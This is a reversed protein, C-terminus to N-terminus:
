DPIVLTKGSLTIRDASGPTAQIGPVNASSIAPAAGPSGGRPTTRVVQSDPLAAGTKLNAYILDLAQNYYVQLPVYRTDYGAITGNSADFHQANLVEYYRLKSTGGEVLANKGVYPRSSHNVPVLADARGHVIVAPKGQLNATYQIEKIGNQVRTAQDALTGAALDQGAADKGTALERLCLAGDFAFDSKGTSASLAKTVLLGRYIDPIHLTSGNPAAEDHAEDGPLLTNYIFHTGYGPTLGNSNVFMDLLFLNSRVVAKGDSDALAYSFNCLNNEVGFRGYSNAYTTAMAPTTSVYHSAHLVDSDALWGYAHLKGLAESAQEAVSSSALLGAQKLAACRNSANTNDLQSLGPAGAVSAALSACPQYLNAYSIYDLVGKGAAAQLTAGQQVALGQLDGAQVQPEAVAVGDVLTIKDQEAAALAAAGGASTSSAIVLTNEPKVTRLHRDAFTSTPAYQQNLVYFAFRVANLTNRGWDREPNQKSHAHKFALRGPYQVKYNTLAPDKLDSKFQNFNGSALSSFVSGDIALASDNSVDHTGVGAGKDTYAVACGHKLGWEGATGVAGYVGRSGPAAAAVICPKSVDFSAPVQVMLLVNKNGSGDDIYATYETGAYKQAPGYLSGYGGGSAVDVQSRYNSYLARRRLSRGLSDTAPTTQNDPGTINLGGSLLDDSVGDVVTKNILGVGEPLRNLVQIRGDQPNIEVNAFSILQGYADGDVDITGPSFDKIRPSQDVVSASLAIENHLTQLYLNEAKQLQDRRIQDFGHDNYLSKLADTNNVNAAAETIVTTAENLNAREEEAYVLTYLLGNRGTAQLMIPYMLGTTPFRFQGLVNATVTAETGYADKLAVSAGPMVTGDSIVGVVVDPIKPGTSNSGGGGSGGGCSAVLGATLAALGARQAHGLLARKM